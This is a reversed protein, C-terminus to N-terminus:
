ASDHSSNGPRPVQAWVCPGGRRAACRLARPLPVPGPKGGGAQVCARLEAIDADQREVREILADSARLLELGVDRDARPEGSALTVVVGAALSAPVALTTTQQSLARSLL